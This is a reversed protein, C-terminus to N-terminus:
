PIPRTDRSAAEWAPQWPQALSASLWPCRAAHRRGRWVDDRRIRSPHGELAELTGRYPVELAENAHVREDSMARKKNDLDYTHYCGCSRM